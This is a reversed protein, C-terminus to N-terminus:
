ALVRHPRVGAQVRIDGAKDRHLDPPGPFIWGHPLTSGAALRPFIDAYKDQVTTPGGPCLRAHFAFFLQHSSALVILRPSSHTIFIASVRACSKICQEGACRGTSWSYPQLPPIRTPSPVPWVTTDRPISVKGKTSIEKYCRTLERKM